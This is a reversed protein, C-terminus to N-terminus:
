ITVLENTSMQILFVQVGPLLSYYIVMTKTVNCGTISTYPVPSSQFPTHNGGTTCIRTRHLPFNDMVTHSYVSNHVCDIVHHVTHVIRALVILCIHDYTLITVM